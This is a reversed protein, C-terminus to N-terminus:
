QLDLVSCTVSISVEGKGMGGLIVIVHSNNEGTGCFLCLFGSGQRSIM